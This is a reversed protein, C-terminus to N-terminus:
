VGSIAFHTLLQQCKKLKIQIFECFGSDGLIQIDEGLGMVFRGPGEYKAIPAKLIFQNNAHKTLFHEALPYEEILLNKAKLSMICEVEKNFDGTNRFIDVPKSHHSREYEWNLLTEKADEIRCIKFQRNQKLETDFAWVLSFDDKFEFPEVMRNKITQSNGSAYNILLIQKKEKQAKRLAQTISSKEKLYSEIVKDQNLFATLKQKLRTTYANNEDMLDISKSLIYTEEESFHLVNRLVQYDQDPYDIWYKGEKQQLDFGTDLLVNRYNYFASDKIGLFSTCDEKTKPYSNSLFLILRLIRHTKTNSQM